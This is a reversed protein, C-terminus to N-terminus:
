IGQDDDWRRDLYEELGDKKFVERIRLVEDQLTSRAVNMRKSARELSPDEKLLNCLEKQRFSLKDMVKIVAASLEKKMVINVTEGDKAVFEEIYGGYEHELLEDLSISTYFAKRKAREKDRVINLLQRRTVREM